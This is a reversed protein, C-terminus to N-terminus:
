VDMDLLCPPNAMFGEEQSAPLEFMHRHGCIACDWGVMITPVDEIDALCVDSGFRAKCYSCGQPHHGGPYPVSPETIITEPIEPLKGEEKMRSLQAKASEEQLAKEAFLEKELRDYKDM